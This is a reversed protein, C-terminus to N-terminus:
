SQNSSPMEEGGDWRADVLRHSIYFLPIALFCATGMSVNIFSLGIAIMSILPAALIRLTMSRKAVSDVPHRRQIGPQSIAYRWIAMLSLSAAIYGVGVFLVAEADHKYTSKLKALFPILTLFFLFLANLWVLTRNSYRFYHFMAHHQIWYAAIIWFSIGYIIVDHGIRHMFKILGQESFLHDEPIDIGLVLLTIAIAAVGDTLANLRDLPLKNLGDSGENKMTNEQFTASANRKRWQM